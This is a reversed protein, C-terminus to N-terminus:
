DGKVKIYIKICSTVLLIDILKPITAIQGNETKYIGLDIMHFSVLDCSTSFKM